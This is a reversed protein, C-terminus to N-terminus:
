GQPPGGQMGGYMLAQVWVILLTMAEGEAFGAERFGDYQAKTVRAFDRSGAALEDLEERDLAM